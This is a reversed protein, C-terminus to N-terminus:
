ELLASGSLPLPTPPGYSITRTEDRVTPRVTDSFALLKSGLTEDLGGSGLVQIMVDEAGEDTHSARIQDGVLLPSPHGSRLAQNSEGLGKTNIGELQGSRGGTNSRQHGGGSLGNPQDPPGGRLSKRRQNSM